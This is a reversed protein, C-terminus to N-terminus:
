TQIGGEHNLSHAPSQRIPYDDYRPRRSKRNATQPYSSRTRPRGRKPGRGNAGMSSEAKAHPSVRVVRVEKDLSLVLARLLLATADGNTHRATGRLRSSAAQSPVVLDSIQGGRMMPPNWVHARCFASQSARLRAAGFRLQSKAIIGAFKGGACLNHAHSMLTVSRKVM